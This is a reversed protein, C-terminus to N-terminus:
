FSPARVEDDSLFELLTGLLEDYVRGGEWIDVRQTEGNNEKLTRVPNERAIGMLKRWSQTDIDRARLRQIISQLLRATHEPTKPLNSNSIQKKMKTKLWETSGEHQQKDATAVAGNSDVVPPEQYTVRPSAGNKLQGALEPFTVREPTKQQRQAEKNEKDESVSEPRPKPPTKPPVSITSSVSRLDQKIETPSFDRKRSRPSLPGPSDVRSRQTTSASIVPVEGLVEQVHAVKEEVVHHEEEEPQGWARKLDRVTVGEFTGLIKDFTPQDIKRLSKLLTALPQYNPAKTQNLMALLRNVYTKYNSHDKLFDNQNGDLALDILEKLWVLAGHIVKKKQTVTYPNVPILKKPITGFAGMSTLIQFLLSTAEDQTLLSKLVPMSSQMISQAHSEDDGEALLLVKPVVQDMPVVKYLEALVEPALVHEVVEPQPDNVLRQLTPALEQTPPLTPVKSSGDENSPPKRKALLCAIIVIGEVRVRWDSHNLQDLLSLKKTSPAPSQQKLPSKLHRATHPPSSPPQPSRRSFHLPAEKNTSSHTTSPSVARNAAAREGSGINAPTSRVTAGEPVTRVKPRSPRVPASSLGAPQAQLTVPQQAESPPLTNARQLKALQAQQRKQALITDKISPRTVPATATRSLPPPRNGAKASANPNEKELLKKMTNDLGDMILDARDPWVAAFDWFAGRMGERVGPNADALGRKICKELIELGGTHELYGKHDMHMKILLRLWGTAYSRPQVNKDQVANWVHNLIKPHYSINALIITTTVQGMQSTIKKTNGCLKVLNILLLEAMPDLGHGCIIALDKVLQCGTSSLTTRLSNVAKLIGDMLSKVGVLFTQQYDKYANGRLLRRIKACNKERALWNQESERGDFSGAMDAFIEELERNTNVYEPDLAELESGPIDDVARSGMASGSVSTATGLGVKGSSVEDEGPGIVTGTELETGGGPIGLQTIIYAATAKRVKHRVLEKKLDARAHDPANRRGM